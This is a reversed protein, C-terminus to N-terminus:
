NFGPFRALVAEVTTAGPGLLWLVERGATYSCARQANAEWCDGRTTNVVGGVFREGLHQNLAALFAIADASSDWIWRAALVTHGNQDHYYVLYRDGGWGAAASAATSEAIQAEVDAGYALLLYTMWEGLSNNELLRWGDGLVEELDTERVVAPSEGAFYKSPHLIQETSQPLQDYAQNVRAWRGRDYLAQVFVAGEVYPFNGDRVVYPPPFQEPLTQPPSRYNFIDQYDQPSAYQEWWQTMVLTADGEVLARIAQCRQEDELCQPYM